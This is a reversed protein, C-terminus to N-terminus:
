RAAWRLAARGREGFRIPEAQGAKARRLLTKPAIGLRQAMQKTTLLEGSAGPVTTPAIAALAAAAECYSCWASEDGAALKAELQDLREVLRAEARTIALQVPRM